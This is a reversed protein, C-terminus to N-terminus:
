AHFLARVDGCGGPLLLLAERHPAPRRGDGSCLSRRGARDKEGWHEGQDTAVWLRSQGDVASNDPCAFWGNASTESNWLAGVEAISPDGCRVLIEWSFADAAHDDGDPTLEIIHGFENGARPNAADVEAPARKENYTLNVYVKGTV